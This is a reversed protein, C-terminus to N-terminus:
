YGAAAFFGFIGALISAFFSLVMLGLSIILLIGIYKYHSRLWRFAGTLQEEQGTQLAFRMDESFKYLFYMPFFYIVAMVFYFVTLFGTPFPLPQHTFEAAMQLFFGMMFGLLVMLGSLIFGMIAIFKAWKRIEALYFLASDSLTPKEM